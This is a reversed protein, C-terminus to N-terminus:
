INPSGEKMKGRLLGKGVSGLIYAALAGLGYDLTRDEDDPVPIAGPIGDIGAKLEKFEDGLKKDLVDGLLGAAQNIGEDRFGQAFGCGGLVLALGGCVMVICLWRPVM